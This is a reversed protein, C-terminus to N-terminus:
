KLVYYKFNDPDSVDMWAFPVGNIRHVLQQYEPESDESFTHGNNKAAIRGGHIFEAYESQRVKHQMM